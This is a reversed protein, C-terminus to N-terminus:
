VMRGRYSEWQMPLLVCVERLRDLARLGILEELGSLDLNSTIIMPKIANYRDNIIELLINKETETGAQVGLEDLVLLYPKVFGEMVQRESLESSRNYTDKVARVAQTATLFRVSRGRALVSNAVAAALHTKGTGVGGYFLLGKGRGMSAEHNGVYRQSVTLARAQERNGEDVRYDEFAADAFRPPIGSRERRIRVEEAAYEAQVRAEDRRLEERAGAECIGGLSEFKGHRECVGAQMTWTGGLLESLAMM